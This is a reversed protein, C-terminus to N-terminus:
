GQASKKARPKPKGKAVQVVICEEAARFSKKRPDGGGPCDGSPQLAAYAARLQKPKHKPMLLKGPQSTQDCDWRLRECLPCKYQVHGTVLAAAEGGPGAAAEGPAAAAGAPAAAAAGAVAAAAAAAAGGAPEAGPAGAGPAGGAGAAAAAAARQRKAKALRAQLSFTEKCLCRFHVRGAGGDLSAFQANRVKDDIIEVLEGSTIRGAGVDEPRLM